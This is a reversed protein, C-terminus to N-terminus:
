NLLYVGRMRDHYSIGFYQISEMHFPDCEHILHILTEEGQECLSCKNDEDRNVLSNHREKDKDPCPFFHKTQRYLPRGDDRREGMWRAMWIKENRSQVLNVLHFYPVLIDDLEKAIVDDFDLSGYMAGLNTLENAKKKGMHGKYAKIWKLTVM